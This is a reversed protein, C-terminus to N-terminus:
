GLESPPFTRLTNRNAAIRQATPHMVPAPLANPAEPGAFIPVDETHCNGSCNMALACEAQSLVAGDPNAPHTM